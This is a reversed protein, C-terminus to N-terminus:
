VQCHDCKGWSTIAYSQHMWKENELADSRDLRSVYASVRPKTHPRCTAAATRPDMMTAQKMNRTPPQSPAKSRLRNTNQLKANNPLM